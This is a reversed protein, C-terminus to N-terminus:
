SKTEIPKAWIAWMFALVLMLGGAVITYTAYQPKAFTTMDPASMFIVGTMAVFIVQREDSQQWGIFGTFAWVYILAFLALLLWGM